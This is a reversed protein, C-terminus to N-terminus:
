GIYLIAIGDGGDGGNAGQLGAGSLVNGAVGGAGGSVDVTPNGNRCFVVIIGGSGGAAGGGSGCGTPATGSSDGGNGGSGGKSEISGTGVINKAGVFVSAASGGGGGGAGGVGSTGAGGGAGGGGGTGCTYAVNNLQRGSVAQWPNHISGNVATSLAVTGGNGGAQSNTNTATKGPGGGGGGGGQGLGGSNGPDGPTFTAHSAGGSAAGAIFNRPCQSANGGAAGGANVAGGNGGQLGGGLIGGTIVAGGTGAANLVANNGNNGNRAIKGNLTLTDRVFIRFGGPNLTVGADVTLNEYFKDETLTMDVSITADGDSGDGFNGSWSASTDDIIIDFSSQTVSLNNSKIARFRLDNGSKDEWVGVGTGLNQGTLNTDAGPIPAVAADLVGGTVHVYGTGSPAPGAPGTAGPSGPTGAPGTPGAPGVSGEGVDGLADLIERCFRRVERQFPDRDDSFLPLKIAM